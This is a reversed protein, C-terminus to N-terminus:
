FHAYGTYREMRGARRSGAFAPRHTIVVRTVVAEPWQPTAPVGIRRDLWLGGSIGFIAFL